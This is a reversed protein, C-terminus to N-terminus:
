KGRKNIKDAEKKLEDKYLISYSIDWGMFEIYHILAIFLLATSLIIIDNNNHVSAIILCIIGTITFINFFFINFKILKQLEKKSVIQKMKAM